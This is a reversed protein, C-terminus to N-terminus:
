LATSVSLIFFIFIVFKFLGLNENGSKCALDIYIFLYFNTIAEKNRDVGAQTQFKIIIYVYPSIFQSWVWFIDTLLASSFNPITKTNQIM